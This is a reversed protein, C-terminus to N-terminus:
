LLKLASYEISDGITMYTSVAIPVFFPLILIPYKKKVIWMCTRNCDEFGM